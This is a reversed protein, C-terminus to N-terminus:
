LTVEGNSRLSKFHVVMQFSRTVLFFKAISTQFVRLELAQPLDLGSFRRRARDHSRERRIKEDPERMLPESAGAIEARRAEGGREYEVPLEQDPSPSEAKQIAIRLEGASEPQSGASRGDFKALGDDAVTTAAASVELISGLQPRASSRSGAPDRINRRAM